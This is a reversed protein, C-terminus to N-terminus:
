LCAMAGMADRRRRRGPVFCHSPDFAKIRLGHVLAERDTPHGKMAASHYDRWIMALAEAFRDEADHAGDLHRMVPNFIGDTIM